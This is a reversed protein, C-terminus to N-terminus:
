PNVEEELLTNYFEIYASLYDDEESAPAKLVPKDQEDLLKSLGSPPNESGIVVADAYKVAGKNLNVGTGNQYAGLDSETLNNISAKVAFQDSFAQQLDNDYISYIVKSQQFLPETKYATKLYLPILSTMWGHCHVIDPPWGFKKVTEIVGKCFFVMRDPNDEFPEGNEDKFVQKRKFFDENDLFYVQMRAEPLSAVKIILPFDDDDVIINMGSLRVVEHLRHRRENITGFRPMLVRIEMGNEQVYQPLKRAIESITSLNTYPDMEQTVILVKKKDM